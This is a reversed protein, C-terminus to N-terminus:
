IKLCLKEVKRFLKKMEDKETNVKINKFHLM